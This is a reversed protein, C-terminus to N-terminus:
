KIILVQGVYILNANPINNITKLKNVTTNYKKAIKTLNDGKVVTYKINDDKKVEKTNELVIATHHGESVLIDGRKLKDPSNIYEKDTLIDYYGTKTYRSRMTRTTPANPTMTHPVGALISCVYVLSSCDCECKNVKSIDMNALRLKELLTNRQSQDYGINDNKCALEMYKAQLDSVKDSKARLVYSWPRNYWERICVEKGTQDGAKAKGNWGSDGYETGSAHGIKVM